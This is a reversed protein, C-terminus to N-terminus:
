SRRDQWSRVVGLADRSCPPVNGSDDGPPPPASVLVSNPYSEHVETRITVAVPTLLACCKSKQKLGNFRCKPYIWRIRAFPAPHSNTAARERRCKKAGPVRKYEDSPGTPSSARTSRLYNITWGHGYPSTAEQAGNWPRRRKPDKQKRRRDRRPRDGERPPAFQVASNHYDFRQRLAVHILFDLV